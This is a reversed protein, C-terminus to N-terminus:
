RLRRKISEIRSDDNRSKEAYINRKHELWQLEFDLGFEVLKEFTERQLSIDSLFTCKRTEFANLGYESLSYIFEFSDKTIKGGLTVDLNFIKAKKLISLSINYIKDSNVDKENLSESLDSRGIVIGSIQYKLNKISGLIEDINEFALKSEINIYLKPRHNLKDFSKLVNSYIITFYNLSFCSEIMPALINQAGLQFAEYIDRQAIAGGIKLTLPLNSNRCFQSLIALENITTGEAEFEAKIAVLRKRAVSPKEFIENEFNILNRKFNKMLIMM